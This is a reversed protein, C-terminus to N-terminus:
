YRRGGPGGPGPRGGNGRDNGRNGFGSQPKEESKKVSLQKGGKLNAGNLAQIAELAENDNPMDLFGFGRSKRTEKDLAVKASSVEGYLEFMEKLDVDDFDYPLGAIFLKMYLQKYHLTYNIIYNNSAKPATFNFIFYPLQNCGGIRTFLSRLSRYTHM